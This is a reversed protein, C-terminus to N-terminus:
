RHSQIVEPTKELRVTGHNQLISKTQPSKQQTIPELDLPEGQPELKPAAYCLGQLVLLVYCVVHKGQLAYCKGVDGRFQM